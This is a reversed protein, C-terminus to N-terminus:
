RRLSILFAFFLLVLLAGGFISVGFLVRGAEFWFGGLLTCPNM